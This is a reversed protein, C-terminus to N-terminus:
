LICSIKRPRKTFQLQRLPNQLTMFVLYIIQPLFFIHEFLIKFLFLASGLIIMKKTHFIYLTKGSVVFKKKEFAHIM